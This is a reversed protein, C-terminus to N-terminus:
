PRQPLFLVPPASQRLTRVEELQRYHDASIFRDARVAFDADGLNVGEGLKALESARDHVWGRYKADNAEDTFIADTALYVNPEMSFAM